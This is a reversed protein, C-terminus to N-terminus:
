EEVVHVDFFFMDRAGCDDYDGGYFSLRFM